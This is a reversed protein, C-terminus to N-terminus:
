RCVDTVGTYYCRYSKYVTDISINSQWMEWSTGCKNSTFHGDRRLRMVVVGAHQLVQLPFISNIEVIDVVFHQDHKLRCCKIM